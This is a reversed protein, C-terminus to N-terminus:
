FQKEVNTGPNCCLERQLSTAPIGFYTTLNFVMKDKCSVPFYQLSFSLRNM